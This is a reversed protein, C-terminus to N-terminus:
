KWFRAIKWRSESDPLKAAALFKDPSLIKSLKKQHLITPWPNSILAPIILPITGLLLELWISCHLVFGKVCLHPHQNLPLTTPHTLSPIPPSTMAIRSVIEHSPIQFAEKVVAAIISTLSSRKERKIQPGQKARKFLPDPFSQHDPPQTSYWARVACSLNPEVWSKSLLFFNSFNALFILFRLM